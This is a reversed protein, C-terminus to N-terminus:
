YHLYYNTVNGEPQVGVATTVVESLGATCTDSYIKMLETATFVEAAVFAEFEVLLHSEPYTAKIFNVTEVLLVSNVADALEDIDTQVPTNVGTGRAANVCHQIAHWTEHRM